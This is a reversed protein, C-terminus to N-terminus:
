VISTVIGNTVTITKGDASIFSGTAGNGASIPLDTEIGNVTSLLIRTGSDDGLECKAYNDRVEFAIEHYAAGLFNFSFMSQYYSTEAVMQAALSSDKMDLRTRDSYHVLFLANPIELTTGILPALSLKGTMARYGDIRLYALLDPLKSV